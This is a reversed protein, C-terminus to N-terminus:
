DLHSRKNGEKLEKDKRKQYRDKQRVARKVQYGEVHCQREERKRDSERWSLLGMQMGRSVCHQFWIVTTILPWIENRFHLEVISKFLETDMLPTSLLTGTQSHYSISHLLPYALGKKGGGSARYIFWQFINPEGPLVWILPAKANLKHCRFANILYMHMRFHFSIRGTLFSISQSIKERLGEGDSPICLHVYM